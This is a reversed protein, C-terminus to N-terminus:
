FSAMCDGRDRQVMAYLKDEKRLRELNMGLHLDVNMERRDAELLKELELTDNFRRQDCRLITIRENQAGATAVLFFAFIAVTKM